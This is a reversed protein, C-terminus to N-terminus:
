MLPAPDVPNGTIELAQEGTDAPVCCLRPKRGIERRVISRPREFSLLSQKM